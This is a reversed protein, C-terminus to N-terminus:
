KKDETQSFDKNIRVYSIMGCAIIFAGLFVAIVVEM